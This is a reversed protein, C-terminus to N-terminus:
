FGNQTGLEKSAKSDRRIPFKEVDWDETDGVEQLWGERCSGKFM